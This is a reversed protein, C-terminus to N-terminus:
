DGDHGDDTMTLVLITMQGEIRYAMKKARGGDCVMAPGADHQTTQISAIAGSEHECVDGRRIETGYRPLTTYWYHM